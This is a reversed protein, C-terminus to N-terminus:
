DRPKEPFTINLMYEVAASVTAENLEGHGGKEPMELYGANAHDSLVAVWLGSRETWADRDGIKPAGDQGSDHCVACAVDYTEKGDLLQEERWSKAQVGDSEAVPTAEDDGQSCGLLMLLSAGLLIVKVRFM